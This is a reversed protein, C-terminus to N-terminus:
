LLGLERLDDRPEDFSCSGISTALVRRADRVQDATAALDRWALVGDEFRWARPEDEALIKAMRREGLRHVRALAAGGFLNLFGHM